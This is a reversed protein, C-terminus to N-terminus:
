KKVIGIVDAERVLIAELGNHEVQTSGWAKFVVEDGAKVKKVEPGVALVVAETPLDQESPVIAIGEPTESATKKLRLYLYDHLPEIM